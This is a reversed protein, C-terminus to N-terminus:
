TMLEIRETHEAALLLPLFPDNSVEATVAGDYGEAELQRAREPVAALDGMLGGLVKM